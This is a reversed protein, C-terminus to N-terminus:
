AKRSAQKQPVRARGRRRGSRGRAHDSRVLSSTQRERACRRSSASSCCRSRGSAGAVITFSPLVAILVREPDHRVILLPILHEFLFVFGAMSLLLVLPDKLDDVGTWTAFVIVTVTLIVGMLLRAPVFLLVPDDLYPGLGAARGNREVTLRLSLRMLASFAAEIIGIYIAAIALLPLLLISM